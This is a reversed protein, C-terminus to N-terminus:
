FVCALEKQCGGPKRAGDESSKRSFRKERKAKKVRPKRRDRPMSLLSNRSTQDYGCSESRRDARDEKRACRQTVPHFRQLIKTTSSSNNIQFTQTIHSNTSNPMSDRHLTIMQIENSRFKQCKLKRTKQIFSFGTSQFIGSLKIVKQPPSITLQHQFYQNGRSAISKVPSRQNKSDYIIKPRYQNEPFIQNKSIDIKQYRTNQSQESKQIIDTQPSRHNRPYEAM